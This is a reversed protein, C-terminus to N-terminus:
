PNQSPSTSIKASITITPKTFPAEGKKSRKAQVAARAVAKTLENSLQLNDSKVSKAYALAAKRAHPDKDLRLVFYMANPDTPKGSRKTIIYKNDFGGDKYNSM